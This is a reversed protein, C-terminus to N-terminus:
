RLLIMLTNKFLSFSCQVTCSVYRLMHEMPFLSFAITEFDDRIFYDCAKLMENLYNCSTPRVM